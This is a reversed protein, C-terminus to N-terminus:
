RNKKLLPREIIIRDGRPRDPTEPGLSYDFAAGPSGGATGGPYSAAPGGAYPGGASAEPTQAATPPASLMLAMGVGALFTAKFLKM